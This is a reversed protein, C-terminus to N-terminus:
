ARRASEPLWSALLPQWISGFKRQLFGSGVKEPLTLRDYM